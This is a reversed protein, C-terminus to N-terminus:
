IGEFAGQWTRPAVGRRLVYDINRVLLLVDARIRALTRRALCTELAAAHRRQARATREVVWDDVLLRQQSVDLLFFAAFIERERAAVGDKSKAPSLLALQQRKYLSFLEHMHTWYYQQAGNFSHFETFLKNHDFTPANAHARQQRHELRKWAIFFAFLEKTCRKPRPRKTRSSPDRVPRHDLVRRAQLMSRKCADALDATIRDGLNPDDRAGPSPPDLEPESDASSASETHAALAAPTDTPAAYSPAADDAPVLLCNKPAPM